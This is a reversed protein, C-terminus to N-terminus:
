LYNCHGAIMPHQMAAPSCCRALIIIHQTSRCHVCDVINHTHREAGPIQSQHTAVCLWRVTAAAADDSVCSRQVATANAREASRQFSPCHQTLRRHWGELDNNTRVAQQYISITAPQCLANILWTTEVYSFVQAVVTDADQQQVQQQLEDFARVIHGAPLLPLEMLKIVVDHVGTDNVYADTLGPSRCVSQTLM